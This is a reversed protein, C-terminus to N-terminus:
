RGYALSLTILLAVDGDLGAVPRDVGRARCISFRVVARGHQTQSCNAPAPEPLVSRASRRLLM